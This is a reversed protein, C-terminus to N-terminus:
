LFFYSRQNVFIYNFRKHSASNTFYSNILQATKTNILIKTINHSCDTQRNMSEISTYSLAPLISLIHTFFYNCLSFFEPIKTCEWSSCQLVLVVSSVSQRMHIRLKAKKHHLIGIIQLAPILSPPFGSGSANWYKIRIAYFAKHNSNPLSIKVPQM